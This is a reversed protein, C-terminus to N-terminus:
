DRLKIDEYRVQPEDSFQLWVFDDFQTGHTVRCIAEPDYYDLGLDKLLERAGTRERPFCRDEFYELLDDYTASTQVGFPLFLVFDTFNEFRVSNGEVYIKSILEERTYVEITYSSMSLVGVKM